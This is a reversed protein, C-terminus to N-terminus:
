KNENIEERYRGKCYKWAEGITDMDILWHSDCYHVYQPSDDEPYHLLKCHKCGKCKM